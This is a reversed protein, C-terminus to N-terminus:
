LMARLIHAKIGNLEVGSYVIASGCGCVMGLVVVMSTCWEVGLSVSSM